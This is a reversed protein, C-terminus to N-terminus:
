TQIRVPGFKIIKIPLFVMKYFRYFRKANKRIKSYCM